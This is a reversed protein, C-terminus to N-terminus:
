YNKIRKAIELAIYFIKLNELDPLSNAFGKEWKESDLNDGRYLFYYLELNRFNAVAQMASAEMEVAICGESVRNKVHNVTERYFADTTWTGGEVFDINLSHLISSVVSHNPMDIYDAPPAYHYSVGEDRYAKTPVIIKLPSISKVLGGCSGFVVFKKCSYVHSLEEMLGTCIPAGVTTKFVGITTDKIRYVPYNCSISRLGIPDVVEVIGNEILSSLIQMSFNIIFVDIRIDSKKYVAEIDIVAPSKDDFSNIISM